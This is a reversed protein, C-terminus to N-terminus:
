SLMGRLRKIGMGIEEHLLEIDALIDEPPRTDMVQDAAEQYRNFTLQYNNAAIEDRPVFFSQELRTRSCEPSAPDELTAWRALVDPLDNADVPSRKKDLSRGDARIEYFWVRDTGGVGTKTFVLISTQTTSFPEYAGPPVKIVARLHHDDVLSTRLATQAKSEGFLVGEPVIVAARGGPQLLSLVRGVFLSAKTTSKVSRHLDKDLASKEISGSFPPNTLVVTFSGLGRGWTALSDRRVIEANEVGHLLVNLASMRAFAPDNDFGHLLGDHFQERTAPILLLDANHARVHKASAVLFGGSGSAPDAIVDGPQPDLMKVMLDILHRPTPFGGSSNKTTIKSILYEYAAGNLEPSGYPVKDVLDVLRSLASPSPITFVADTFTGGLDRVLQIVRLEFLGFMTDPDANKLRSWRIDDTEDTFVPGEIPKGTVVAKREAATHVADLRRVALLLSAQAVIDYGDEIGVEEFGSWLDDIARKFSAASM